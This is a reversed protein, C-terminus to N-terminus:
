SLPADNNVRTILRVGRYSKIYSWGWSLMVLIKSRFDILFMIHVFSWMMWALLGSFKFSFISAVASAKGITALTGKDFYRFTPRGHKWDYKRLLKGIFKGQQIAVPATGPLPNNSTDMAKASDGIVFIDPYGEISLDGTVVILGSSDQPVDLTKLFEPARNGAAWIVTSAEVWQDDIKVRGAEIGNVVASTRVEVGLNEL